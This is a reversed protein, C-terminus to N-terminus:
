RAPTATGGPWCCETGDPQGGPTDDSAVELTAWDYHRTGKTGSGTCMRHWARAPIMKAASAAAM